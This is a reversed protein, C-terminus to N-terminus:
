DRFSIARKVLSKTGANVSSLPLREFRYEAYAVPSAGLGEKYASLQQSDGSEGMHFSECGFRHAEQIALWDLYQMAGSSGVRERNMVARTAHANRATVVVNAGVPEGGIFAIWLRFNDSLCRALLRMRAPPDRWMQRRRAMWVPEGQRVAWRDVSLHWLQEYADLLEPQNGAVVQITGSARRIIRRTSKRAAALVADLGGRLDVIHARLPLRLAASGVAEDWADADLPNPRVRLSIWNSARLDEVVARIVFPDDADPGILGGIGWGVPPSAAWTGGGFRRRMLPLVVARGHDLRYLRSADVWKGGAGIAETWAPLHDALSRSDASVLQEWEHRPAPASVDLM